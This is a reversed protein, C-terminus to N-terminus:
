ARVAYCQALTSSAIAAFYLWRLEADGSRHRQAENDSEKGQTLLQLAARAPLLAVGETTSTGAIVQVDFIPLARLEGGADWM